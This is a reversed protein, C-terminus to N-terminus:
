IATLWRAAFPSRRKLSALSNTTRDTSYNSKTITNRPGLRAYMRLVMDAWDNADVGGDRAHISLIADCNDM